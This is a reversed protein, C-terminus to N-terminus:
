ATVLSKIKMLASVVATSAQAYESRGGLAVEEGLREGIDARRIIDGAARHFRAHDSLLQGFEALQSHKKGAGHLWKGLDCLSDQATKVPDLSHDPQAIYKQLKSKWRAHAEIAQEFNLDRSGEGGGASGQSTRYQQIMVSLEGALLSLHHCQDAIQGSASSNEEALQSIQGVSESIEGSASTQETAATAIMHIMQEVHSSSDIVADLTARAQTAESLGSEVAGRSQQVVELTTSTEQQITRITAAIEETASRTREALRRVEGAVVAFGRGHEGARAAEIAANLALLNTQESIEQIVSVVKGIEGSRHALSEMQEAVAGSAAAIKEMTSSAAAMVTGSERATEASQRSATSAEEANRSIEAITATMEQAAAAIQGTRTTQSETNSRTMMSQVSLKEVAGNITEVSHGASHIMGQMSEVTRNLALQLRGIEDHGRVNVSVTLDHAAVKELAQTVAVVPPAILRTLLIGVGISLLIVLAIVGTQLWRLMRNADEIKQGDEACLETYHGSLSVALNMATNFDGLLGQEQTALSGDDREGRDVFGSVIATSKGLYAAFGSTLTRYQDMEPGATVVSEFRARAAQYKQLALVRMPPYKQECAAEHCLLSALEVRRITQMQAQMTSVAEAAVLSRQTLDRTQRGIRFLGNVAGVGELVCLMLITGFAATFKHSLRLDRLITMAIRPKGELTEGAVAPDAAPSRLNERWEDVSTAPVHAPSPLRSGPARLGSGPARLGSGPARLGSGPARLGSGPARLGSNSALV